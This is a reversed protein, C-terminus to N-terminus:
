PTRDKVPPTAARAEAEAREEAREKEVQVELAALRAPDPQWPFTGPPRPRASAERACLEHAALLNQRSDNALQSAQKFADGAASGQDFLFRSAALQWAASAVISSPGPGCVGGGVTAALTRCHARRFDVAARRYPAFAADDALEALGLRRALRTASRRARGGERQATSAGPTWRGDPRREDTSPVHEPAHVGRPLEDAPLVEIRPVGAGTGHGTRLTVRGEPPARPLGDRPVLHPLLSRARSTADSAPGPVM